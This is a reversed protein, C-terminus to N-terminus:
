GREYLLGVTRANEGLIYPEKHLLFKMLLAVSRMNAEIRVICPEKRRFLWLIYTKKQLFFRMLTATSRM